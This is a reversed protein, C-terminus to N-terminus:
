QLWFFQLIQSYHVLLFANDERAFRFDRRGRSAAVHKDLSNWFSERVATLESDTGQARTPLRLLAGTAVPRPDDGHLLGASVGVRPAEAAGARTGAGDAM